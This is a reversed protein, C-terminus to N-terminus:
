SQLVTFYLFNLAQRLEPRPRGRPADRSTIAMPLPRLSAMVRSLAFVAKYSLTM